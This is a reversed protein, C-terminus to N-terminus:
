EQKKFFVNFFSFHTTTFCCPFREYNHFFVHQFKGFSDFKSYGFFEFVNPVIFFFFRNRYYSCWVVSM